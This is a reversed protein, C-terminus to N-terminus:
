MSHVVKSYRVIPYVAPLDVQCTERNYMSISSRTTIGTELGCDSLDYLDTYLIEIDWDGKTATWGLEENTLTRARYGMYTAVAIAQGKSKNKIFFVPTVGVEAKAMFTKAYKSKAGWINLASSARFHIGNGVRLLYPTSM